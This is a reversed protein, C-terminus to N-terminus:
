CAPLSTHVFNSKPTAIRQKVLYGSVIEAVQHPQDEHIAHGSKALVQFQFKGQMHGVTLTTDLGHINALLLLKPIRLDLFKQSLGKFWGPWFKETKSLDIRWTYPEGDQETRVSIPTKFTETNQSQPLPPKGSISCIGDEAENVEIIDEISCTSPIEKASSAVPEEANCDNSALKGTKVRVLQGPMSVRAAEINHTKGRKYYWQIAHQLSKFQTPRGRIISQMSSLADLATGEVVDIVCLGVVAEIHYAAEVAIAGGMSHGLLIIPSTNRETVKAAMDVVDNSLMELSLNSDDNTSTNGHGRLDLAVVQCNIMKTVEQAFLAWTLGSYGGGHLCLLIPGESGKTYVHFEGNALQILEEKEFYESWKIPSFDKALGFVRGPPKGHHAHLIRRLDSM